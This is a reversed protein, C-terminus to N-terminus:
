EEGPGKECCDAAFDFAASLNPDSEGRAAKRLAPALAIPRRIVAAEAASRRVARDSSSLAAGLLQIVETDEPAGGIGLRLIARPDQAGQAQRKLDAGTAVAVSQTIGSQLLNLGDENASRLVIWAAPYDLLENLEIRNAHESTFWQHVWWGPRVEDSGSRIFHRDILISLADVADEIEIAVGDSSANELVLFREVTM